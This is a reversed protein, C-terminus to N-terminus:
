SVSDAQATAIGFRSLIRGVPAPIRNEPVIKLCARIAYLGLLSAVTLGLVIAPQTPLAVCGIFITAISVVYLLIASINERTWRFGTLRRVIAYNLAIHFSYSAFFAIGTGDVGVWSVLIWALGLHVITWAVECFIILNQKAKAMIIFGMPWSVVRMAIGLCMWRLLGTAAGFGPAYMVSLVLPALALTAIVGPGALLVSVRAQENVLRNCEEHDHIAATLRPYFDAGMSQLIMGVYLGGITWAAQYFGTAELGAQQRVIIRIVYASAMMLMSSIMFAFGLKILPSTEQRFQALSIPPREVEIKRSYYWSAALTMAAAVVLSPAVGDERFWYVLPIAALTAFLSGLVSMKALDSIRRMGQILAGQGASVLAFFVAASLIGIGAWRQDTGFTLRAIPVAFVILVLAGLAGLALSVWRLVAATRAIRQRDGSGASEAIQRVGSSNVGLAAVSQALNAVSMYLGALGFGAPGLLVAMAKTRAIGIAINIVQSGGVWATSKLIQGYSSPAKAQHGATRRLTEAHSAADPSDCVITSM